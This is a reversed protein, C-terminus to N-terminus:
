IYKYKDIFYHSQVLRNQFTGNRKPYNKQYHNITGLFELEEENYDQGTEERLERIIAADILEGEDLKGGPLLIVNGYNAVLMQNNEDLLIARVKISCDEVDSIKLNDENIVLEM